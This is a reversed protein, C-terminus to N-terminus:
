ELFLAVVQPSQLVTSTNLKEKGGRFLPSRKDGVRARGQRKQPRVKRGSGRVDGRGKDHYQVVGRVKALHYVLARHIIDPRIQSAFVSRTLHAIGVPKNSAFDQIWAQVFHEAKPQRQIVPAVYSSVTSAIPTYFHSSAIVM